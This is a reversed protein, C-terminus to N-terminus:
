RVFNNVRTDVIVTNQDPEKMGCTGYMMSRKSQVIARSNATSSATVEYDRKARECAITDIRQAQLDPQTRQPATGNTPANRQQDRLQEKLQENERRLQLERGASFDISNVQVPIQGGTRSSGCPYDTFEIKGNADKCKFVQQQATVDSSAFALALIVAAVSRMKIM